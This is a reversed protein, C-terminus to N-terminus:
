CSIFIQEYERTCDRFRQYCEYYDAPYEWRELIGKNNILLSTRSKSVGMVYGIVQINFDKIQELVNTEYEDIKRSPLQNYVSKTFRKNDLM